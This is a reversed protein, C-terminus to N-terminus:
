RGRPTLGQLAGGTVAVAAATGTAVGLATAAGTVCSLTTGREGLTPDWGSGFTAGDTLSVAGARIRGM